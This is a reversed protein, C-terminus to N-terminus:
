ETGYKFGPNHVPMKAGSAERWSQLKNSLEAAVEPLEVKIDFSESTDKKLDYLEVEGTEYFEILKYDGKRIAGAPSDGKGGYHPYHWFLAERKLNEGEILPLLSEGDLDSHKEYAIGCADLITPFFDIAHVPVGSVSGAETIGPIRILFPERIGGEYLWGKGARLPANTTPSGEATSLGGNDSTFCVITSKDLGSEELIDLLRGINEDMIELLAAYEADSQVLRERWHWKPNPSEQYWVIDRTFTQLTDLGMSNAKARYKEVKEPKPQIPTHVAYFSLMLFFPSDQDENIWRISEDVLRDTLFEGEPGDKLHPNNYPTYYGKGERSNGNPSGKLWGAINKDFGQHQPYFASDHSAHWKGAFCTRYGGDKMASGITVEERPLNYINEPSIMAYEAMREKDIDAQYGKIWDTIGSRVTYKGTLISIRSPSCVPSSAYGNTFQMSSEALKDINPTEYYTSGNYGVDMWGLDDAVILIVNPKDIQQLGNSCGTFVVIATLIFILKKIRM